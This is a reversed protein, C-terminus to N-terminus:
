NHVTVIGGIGYNTPGVGFIPYSGAMKLATIISGIRDQKSISMQADKSFIKDVVVAKGPSSVIFLIVLLGIGTLAVLSKKKIVTHKQQMSWLYVAVVTMFVLINITSSSILLGCILIVFLIRSIRRYQFLPTRTDLFIFPLLMMLSVNMYGGFFNGEKFTSNRIYGGIVPLSGYQISQSGPLLFTEVHLLSCVFLYIAYLSALVSGAIWWRLLSLLQKKRTVHVVIYMFILINLAFYCLKMFISLETSYRGIAWSPLTIDNIGNISIIGTFSYWLLFAFLAYILPRQNMEPCM